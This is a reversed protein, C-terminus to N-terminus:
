MDVYMYCHQMKVHILRVHDHNQQMNVSSKDQLYSVYTNRWIFINTEREVRNKNMHYTLMALESRQEDDM